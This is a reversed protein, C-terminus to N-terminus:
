AVGGLTSPAKIRQQVRDSRTSVEETQTALYTNVGVATALFCSPSPTTAYPISRPGLSITFRFM